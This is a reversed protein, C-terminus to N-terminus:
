KPPLITVAGFAPKVLWWGRSKKLVEAGRVSGRGVPVWLQKRIAGPIELVVGTEQAEVTRIVGEAFAKAETYATDRLMQAYVRPPFIQELLLNLGSYADMAAAGTGELLGFQPGDTATDLVLPDVNKKVWADLQELTCDMADIPEIRKAKMEDRLYRLYMKEGLYGNGWDEPEKFGGVAPLTAHGYEHAVERAMEVPNKFSNLDYIYITNVKKTGTPDVDEDFLQEGGADGGWCLYVDVTGNNYVKAHDLSFRLANCEWMRLLMRAVKPAKDNEAKREQSFVRFKADFPAANAGTRRALGGVVWEFMLPQAPDGFKKPSAKPPDMKLDRIFVALRTTPKEPDGIYLVRSAAQEQALLTTAILATLM